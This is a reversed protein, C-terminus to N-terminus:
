NDEFSHCKLIASKQRIRKTCATLEVQINGVLPVDDFSQKIWHCNEQYLLAMVDQLTAWSGYKSIDM